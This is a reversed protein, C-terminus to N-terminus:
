SLGWAVLIIKFSAPWVFLYNLLLFEGRIIHCYCQNHSLDFLLKFLLALIITYVTGTRITITLFSFLSYQQIYSAAQGNPDDVCMPFLHLFDSSILNGFSLANNRYFHPTCEHIDQQRFILMLSFAGLWQFFGSENSFIFYDRFYIACALSDADLGFRGSSDCLNTLFGNECLILLSKQIYLTNTSHLSRIENTANNWLNSAWHQKPIKWQLMGYTAAYKGAQRTETFVWIEDANAIGGKHWIELTFNYAPLRFM